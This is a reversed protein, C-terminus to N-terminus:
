IKRVFSHRRFRWRRTTNENNNKIICYYHAEAHGATRVWLLCKNPSLKRRDRPLMFFNQSILVKKIEL